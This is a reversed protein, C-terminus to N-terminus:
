PRGETLPNRKLGIDISLGSSLVFVIERLGEVEGAEIEGRHFQHSDERDVIDSFADLYVAM